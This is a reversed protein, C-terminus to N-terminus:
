SLQDGINEQYLFKGLQEGIFEVEVEGCVSFRVFFYLFSLLLNLVNLM